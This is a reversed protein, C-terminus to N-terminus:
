LYTKRVLLISRLFLTNCLSCESRISLGRQRRNISSFSSIILCDSFIKDSVDDALPYSSFINGQSDGAIVVDCDGTDVIAKCTQLPDPLLFRPFSSLTLKFFSGRNQVFIESIMRCFQTSCLFISADISVGLWDFDGM